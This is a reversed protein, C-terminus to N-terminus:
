RERTGRRAAETVMRAALEAAHRPGVDSRSLTTWTHFDIVLHLMARLEADDPAATQWGEAVSTVIAELRPRWAQGVVEAVEPVSAQDRLVNGLMGERQEYWAYLEGLATALREPPDVIDAWATPDPFPNREGWHTSCAAFLARETPFHNYVTMRSVGARKAVDTVTTRAPGVTGHLEVAAETIRLRTEEESVARKRKRYIQRRPRSTM